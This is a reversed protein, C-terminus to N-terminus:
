LGVSILAQDVIRADESNLTEISIKRAERAYDKFNAQSSLRETMMTYFIDRVKKWGLQKVVLASFKNPIGSLIHVGCRDNKDSAECNESYESSIESMHGPQPVLGLQPELMNRLPVWKGDTISEGIQFSPEKEQQYAQFMEGFIDAFHENLAGSQGLYELNSTSSIVAHTFEHGVVDEGLIFSKFQNGGAGFFFLKKEAIWAANEGFISLVKTNRNVEITFQVTSGNGDYSNRGFQERYFNLLDILTKDALFADKPVELKQGVIKALKQFDLFDRSIASNEYILVGREAGRPLNALPVTFGGYFIKRVVEAFQSSDFRKLDEKSFSSTATSQIDSRCSLFLLSSSFLLAMSSRGLFCGSLRSNKVVGNLSKSSKIKFLDKFTVLQEENQNHM